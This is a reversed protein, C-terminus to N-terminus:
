KTIKKIVYKCGYYTAIQLLINKLPAICHADIVYHYEPVISGHIYKTIIIHFMIILVM